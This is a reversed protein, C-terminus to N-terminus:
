NHTDVFVKVSVRRGRMVSWWVSVGPTTDASCDLDSRCGTPVTSRAGFGAQVALSGRVLMGGAICDENLVRGLVRLM